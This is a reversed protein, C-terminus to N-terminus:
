RKLWQSDKLETYEGVAWPRCFLEAMMSSALDPFTTLACSSIEGSDADRDLRYLRGNTMETCYIYEIM